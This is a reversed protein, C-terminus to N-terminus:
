RESLCKLLWQAVAYDDAPDEVVFHDSAAARTYAQRAPAYESSVAESPLRRNLGDVLGELRLPRPALAGALDCLDGATLVGPIVVDHPLYCFQSQLVSEFSTLGGRIYVAQVDTEYVATLLALLGGLPESLPPEEPVGLPINLNRDPPNVAAFSDGWVAIRRADLDPRTHLYLLISRVDRLRAGVLTEGLMLETSSIATDQSERGRAPGSMTEGTGRLDPLCVAAGGRLLGAATKSRERLFGAKGSQGLGLVVPRPNKHQGSKLILLPVLIGPETELVVREVDLGNTDGLHKGAGLGRPSSGQVPGLVSEWKSKLRTLRSEAAPRDLEARSHLVREHGLRSAIVHLEQPRLERASEGRLCILDEEPLRKQYEDSPGGPIQFWRKLAAHIRERHTAGINNCHSAQPPRGQLVGFGTTYDLFDPHGYFDKYIRQLRKWVPDHEQDWSFEHAYILYRPAISGVIVWPLFGDRCSLRLNRTSEWDGGGAYSFTNEADPQLPFPTEPQPGGFNFPVAATIREDLSAAVAAPDGGGAVSGMLVIRRPDIGQRSLLLDVGRWLDWVMWGVLSDGILHLQIGEIYRFHYDQRGVPFQGSYSQASVFPHQRREGHGLQDMILVLCGLRAWTMGMDQLEGQTKPNHHSHCILIGPMSERLPDPRYLNATVWLGPRSEFLVNEVIFGDGKLTRTVLRRPDSPIAPFQGLSTRLAGLRKRSFSEWQGRSAIERWEQSSRRNAAAIGEQVHKELMQSLEELPRDRVIGADLKEIQSSLQETGQARARPSAVCVSFCLLLLFLPNPRINM